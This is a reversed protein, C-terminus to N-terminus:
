ALQRESQETRKNYRYYTGAYKDFEYTKMEDKNLLKDMAEKTDITLDGCGLYKGNKKYQKYYLVDTGVKEQVWDIHMKKIVNYDTDDELGSMTFFLKYHAFKVKNNNQRFHKFADLSNEVTDFILFQTGKNTFINDQLGNLGETSVETETNILLTKGTKRVIKKKKFDSSVEAM